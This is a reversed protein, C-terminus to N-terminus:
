SINGLNFRTMVSKAALVAIPGKFDKQPMLKGRNHVFYNIIDILSLRGVVPLQIGFLQYNIVAMYEDPPMPYTATDNWSELDAHLAWWGANYDWLENGNNNEVYNGVGPNLPDPMYVGGNSRVFLVSVIKVKGISGVSSRGLLFPISSMDVGESDANPTLVEIM